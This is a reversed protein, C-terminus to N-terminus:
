ACFGFFTSPPMALSGTLLGIQGVEEGPDEITMWVAVDILQQWPGVSLLAEFGHGSFSIYELTAMQSPHTTAM